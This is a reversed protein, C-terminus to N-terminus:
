LNKTSHIHKWLPLKPFKTQIAIPRHTYQSLTHVTHAIDQDVTYSSVSLISDLSVCVILDFSTTLLPLGFSNTCLITPEKIEHIAKLTAANKKAGQAKTLTRIFATPFLKEAVEHVREIGIGFTDLNWSSCSPCRLEPNINEKCSRCIMKMEENAKTFILPKNCSPCMYTHGCDRCTISSAYHTRPTYLLIHGNQSLVKKMERQVSKHLPSWVEEKTHENHILITNVTTDKEAPTHLATYASLLTDASILEKNFHKAVTQIVFRMDLFPRAPMQWNEGDGDAIIIDVAQIGKLTQYTGVHAEKWIQKINQAHKKSPTIIMYKKGETKEKYIQIREALSAEYTTHSHTRKQIEHTDHIFEQFEKKPILHYIVEGASTLFTEAIDQAADTWQAGISGMVATVKNLAFSERRLTGKLSRVDDVTLVLGYQEKGKIKVMVIDGYAVDIATFYSLAGIPQNTVPSVTIVKM